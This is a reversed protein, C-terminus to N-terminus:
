RREQHPDDNGKITPGIEGERRKREGVGGM